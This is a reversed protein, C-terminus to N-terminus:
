GQPADIQSLLEKWNKPVGMFVDMEAVSKPFREFVYDIPEFDPLKLKGHLYYVMVIIAFLKHSKIKAVSWLGDKPFKPKIEFVRNYVRAHHAVINRVINLSKLWSELQPSTLDLRNAITKRTKEPCMAYLHSLLGWDMIEVAVWIPLRGDYHELHHQVFVEHSSRIADKYRSYWIEYNTLRKTNKRSKAIQSARPNLHRVSLHIHPHIKGLEYGLLARMSTEIKSLGSFLWSRLREDFEYYAVIDAFRTGNKFQGTKQDFLPFWYGSLRYYNLISLLHECHEKDGVLMGRSALLDAQQRYTLFAKDPKTPM